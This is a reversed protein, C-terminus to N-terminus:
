EIGDVLRRHGQQGGAVKVGPQGVRQGAPQRSSGRPDGPCSVAPRGRVAVGFGSPWRRRGTAPRAVWLRRPVPRSRAAGASLPQSIPPASGTMASRRWWGRRKGLVVVDGVSLSRNGAARYDTAWQQTPEENLEDFITELAAMIAKQRQASRARLTLSFAAAQEMSRPALTGTTRYHMFDATDATLYIRALLTAPDM